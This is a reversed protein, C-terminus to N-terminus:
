ILHSIMNYFYAEHYSHNVMFIMPVILERSAGFFRIRSVSIKISVYDMVPMGGTFLSIYVVM